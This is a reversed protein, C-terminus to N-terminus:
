DEKTLFKSIGRFRAPDNRYKWVDLIVFLSEADAVSDAGLSGGILGVKLAVFFNSLMSFGSHAEIETAKAASPTLLPDVSTSGAASPLIISMNVSGASLADSKLMSVAPRTPTKKNADVEDKTLIRRNDMALWRMTKRSRFWSKSASAM